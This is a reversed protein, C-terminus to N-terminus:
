RVLDVLLGNLHVRVKAHLTSWKAGHIGNPVTGGYARYLGEAAM